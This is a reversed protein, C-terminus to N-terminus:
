RRDRMWSVLSALAALGAIVAGVQLLTRTVLMEDRVAVAVLLVCFFVGVVVILLRVDRM